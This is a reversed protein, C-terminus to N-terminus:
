CSRIANFAAEESITFPCSVNVEDIKGQIEIRLADVGAQVEAIELADDICHYLAIVEGDM